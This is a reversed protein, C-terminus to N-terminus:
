NTKSSLNPSFHAAYLRQSYHLSQKLPSSIKPEFDQGIIILNDYSLLSKHKTRYSTGWKVFNETSSENGTSM